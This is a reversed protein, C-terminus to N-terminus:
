TDANKQPLLYSELSTLTSSWGEFHDACQKESPLGVQRVRIETAGALAVFDLTVLTVLDIMEGPQWQNFTGVGEWVYTFALREPPTVERYEGHAFLVSGDPHRIGFRYRGGVRPDMEVETTVWEEPGWWARVAAPDVFAEFVEERPYALVRSFALVHGHSEDM